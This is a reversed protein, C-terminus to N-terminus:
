LAQSLKIGTKLEFSREAANEFIFVRNFDSRYLHERVEDPINMTSSLAFGDVVIVLWIVHCKSRYSAVRKNKKEMVQQIEALSCDPVFAADPVTWFGRTLIELRRIDISGIEQPFDEPRDWDAEISVNGDVGVNAATVIKVLRDALDSIRSKSLNAYASFHVSVWLEPDGAQEYISQARDVIQKRLSESAQRRLGNDSDARYLGTLEIGFMVGYEEIPFDPEENPVIGGQPFERCSKKFREVQWQEREKQM